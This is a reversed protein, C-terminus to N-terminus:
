LSVSTLQVTVLKFSFTKKILVQSIASFLTNHLTSNEIRHLYFYTDLIPSHHIYTVISKYLFILDPCRSFLGKKKGVLVSQTPNTHFRM